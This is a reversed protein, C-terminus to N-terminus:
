DAPIVRVTGVLDIGTATVTLQQIDVEPGLDFRTTRLTVPSRGEGSGSIVRVVPDCLCLWRGEEMALGTALELADATPADGPWRLTLRDPALAIDVDAHAAGERLWQDPAVRGEAGALLQALVDRLGQGLLPSQLSAQLDEALMAVQGAVPFPQLLRLAKGRLVQPLNVRIDTASLQAQSIHLGRYIAQRAFLNVGPLYGGLIQRDKGDIAFELGEIHDIQSHLWLRIAPPLLRSIIRSGKPNSETPPPSEPIM